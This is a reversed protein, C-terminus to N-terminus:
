PILGGDRSLSMAASRIVIVIASVLVELRIPAQDVASRENDSESRDAYSSM